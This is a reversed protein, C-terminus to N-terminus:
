LVVGTREGSRPASTGAILAYAEALVKVEVPASGQVAADKIRTLIAETAESRLERLDAM